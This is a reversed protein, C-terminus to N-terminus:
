PRGRKQKGSQKAKSREASRSARTTLLSNWWQQEAQKIAKLASAVTRFRKDLLATPYRREPDRLCTATLGIRFGYDRGIDRVATTEEIEGIRLPGRYILHRTGEGLLQGDQDTGRMPMTEIRIPEGQKV